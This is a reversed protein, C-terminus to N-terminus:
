GICTLHSLLTFFIVDIAGFNHSHTHISHLIYAPLSMSFSKLPNMGFKLLLKRPPTYLLIPSSLTFPSKNEKKLIDINRSTKYHFLVDKIKLFSVIINKFFYWLIWQYTHSSIVTFFHANVIFSCM